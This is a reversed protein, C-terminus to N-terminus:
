PWRKSTHRIRVVQIQNDLVEYVAVYPWPSFLLERTSPVKGRRGRNPFKRLSTVGALITDAVRRAAEPHDLRIYQVINTLDDAAEPTWRVPIV